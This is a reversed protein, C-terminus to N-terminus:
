LNLIHCIEVLEKDIEDTNIYSYRESLTDTSEQIKQVSIYIARRDLLDKQSTINVDKLAKKVLTTFDYGTNEMLANIEKEEKRNFRISKTM